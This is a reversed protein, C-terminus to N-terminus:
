KKCETKETSRKDGHSVCGNIYPIKILELPFEYKKPLNICAFM